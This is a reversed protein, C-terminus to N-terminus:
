KSVCGEGSWAQSVTERPPTPDLGATHASCRRCPWTPPVLGAPGLCFEPLSVVPWLNGALFAVGWLDRLVM